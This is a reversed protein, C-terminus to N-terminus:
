YVAHQIGKLKNPSDNEKTFFSLKEEFFKVSQSGSLLATDNVIFAPISSLNLAKQQVIKQALQQNVSASSLARKAAAQELGTREILELLVNIDSINKGNTFYADILYENFESQKNFQETWHMLLHGLYSNYYYQRKSFDITVGSKFATEVLSTQYDILQSNPWSFQRYFYQSILEGEEPMNPNLEFPLFHFDVTLNLNKIATKINNYGIPCWSCVLDHIM